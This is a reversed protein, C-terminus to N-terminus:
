FPIEDNLREWEKLVAIEDPTREPQPEEFWDGDACCAITHRIDGLENAELLHLTAALIEGIESQRNRAAEGPLFQLDFAERCLLSMEEISLPNEPEYEGQNAYEFEVAAATQHLHYHWHKTRYAWKRSKLIRAIEMQRSRAKKGTVKRLDFAENILAELEDNSLRPSQAM